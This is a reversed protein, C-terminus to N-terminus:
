DMAKSFHPVRLEDAACLSIIQRSDVMKKGRRAILCCRKLETRGSLTQTHYPYTCFGGNKIKTKLGQSVLYWHCLLYLLLIIISSIVFSEIICLQSYKSLANMFKMSDNIQM